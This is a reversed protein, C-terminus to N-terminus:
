LVWDITHPADDYHEYGSCQVFINERSLFEFDEPPDGHIRALKARLHQENEPVYLFAKLHHQKCLNLFLNFLFTSKGHGAKGTTVVFEGPYGRFIQDLEWWGTSVATEEVSKAQPVISLPFPGNINKLVGMVAGWQNGLPTCVDRTPKTRMAVLGAALK